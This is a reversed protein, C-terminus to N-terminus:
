EVWRSANEKTLERLRMCPVNVGGYEAEKREAVTNEAADPGSSIEAEAEVANGNVIKYLTSSSKDRYQDTKKDVPDFVSFRRTPILQFVTM